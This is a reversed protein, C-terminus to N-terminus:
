YGAPVNIDKLAAFANRAHCVFTYYWFATAEYQPSNAVRSFMSGDEEMFDLESTQYISLDDWNGAFITKDLMYKDVILPMGDFELAKYGGELEMPNVYRRNATLLAEYSARVGHGAALWEVKKGSALDVYDVLQRLLADSIARGTGGNALITSKWWTYTAPALGQLTISDSIIGALGMPDVNYTGTVVAFDTAATTVAAGSITITKLAPDIATVTRGTVTVTGGSNVIDIIQNIFFAKVNDVTLTTVSTNVAFTALKGTGDGMSTRQVYNRVDTVLGKVEAEMEKLYTVSDKKTAQIAANSVQLRGHVYGVNGTSTKYSQNGATPLTGTETGAGVGSNRGYHHTISFNKGGGGITQARQMLKMVFYNSGNNVQERIKPLYDVKMADAITTLSAAM